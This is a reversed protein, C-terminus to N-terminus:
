NALRKAQEDVVAAALTGALKSAVKEALADVDVGGTSLRGLTADIRELMAMWDEGTRQYHGALSAYIQYIYTETPTAVPQRVQNFPITGQNLDVSSAQIGPVQGTSSHQWVDYSVTPAAGYRAAWVLVDPVAAKVAPLISTLMANNAYLCPRHGRAKVQNLFAVAFATADKGPVFPSEIDLAPALAVAGVAEARNVLRNAQDVPDGPQAYHYAGPYINVAAAAAAYGFDDRNSTGDSVKIYIFQYGARAVATWDTVKQYATYVDIGYAM